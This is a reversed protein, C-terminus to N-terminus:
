PTSGQDFLSPQKAQSPCGQAIWEDLTEKRYKWRGGVRFAPVEHQKTKKRLTEPHMDLYQAAKSTGWFDM